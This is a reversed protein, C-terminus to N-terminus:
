TSMLLCFAEFSVGEPVWIYKNLNFSLLYNFLLFIKIFVLTATECMLTYLVPPSHSTCIYYVVSLVTILVTYAINLCCGVLIYIELYFYTLYTLSICICLLIVTPPLVM